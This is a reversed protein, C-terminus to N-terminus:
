GNNNEKKYGLTVGTASKVCNSTKGFIGNYNKVFKQKPHRVMFFIKEIESKIIANYEKDSLRDLYNFYELSVGSLYMTSGNKFENM